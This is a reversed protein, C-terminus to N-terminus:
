AAYGIRKNFEVIYANPDTQGDRDVFREYTESEGLSRAGPFRVMYHEDVGPILKVITAKGEIMLGKRPHMQFITVVDGAKFSHVKM